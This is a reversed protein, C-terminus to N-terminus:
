RSLNVVQSNQSKKEVVKLVRINDEENDTTVKRSLFTSGHAGKGIFKIVKYDGLANKTLDLKFNETPLELNRTEFHKRLDDVIFEFDGLSHMLIELVLYSSKQFSSLGKAVSKM